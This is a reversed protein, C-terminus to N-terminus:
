FKFGLRLGIQIQTSTIVHGVGTYLTGQPAGNAADANGYWYQTQTTSVSYYILEGELAIYTNMSKFYRPFLYTMRLNAYLGSGWGSATSLKTRLRHDDVDSVFVPTYCARLEFGLGPFPEIDAMLGLGPEHATLTYELVDATADSFWGTATPVGSANFTYQWGTIADEVHHAYQYHYKAYLSISLPGASSFTWAVEASARWSLTSDNSYTYSWPISPYGTLGFWDYDNMRAAMPLTSHSIAAEFLWERKGNREVLIGTSIGAELSAMPFELRSLASQGAGSDVFLDYATGGLGKQLLPEIFFSVRSENAGADPAAGVCTASLVLIIFVIGINNKM